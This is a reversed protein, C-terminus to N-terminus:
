SRNKLCAPDPIKKLTRYQLFKQALCGTKCSNYNLCKDCPEGSPQELAERIMNFYLSNNWCYELTNNTLISNNLTDAIDEAHIQKFADCPYIRLDPAIVMRNKAAYCEPNKNILLINFPSGTRIDFGSKRLNYIINILEINESKNLIGQSFLSGRGQPVFRLVSIKNIGIEKCFYAVDKLERFTQSVAVFHVEAQIDVKICDKISNITQEFSGSIRTIREHNEAKYSYLSFVARDLGENKLKLFRKYKDPINGSTYLSVYIGLKHTLYIMDDIHNWILPEGGSYAIEKVGLNNAQEVIEVCKEYTMQLSNDKHANSSCHICALPCEYTVEIKIENPNYIKNM